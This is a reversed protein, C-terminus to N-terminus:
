PSLRKEIDKVTPPNDIKEEVAGFKFIFVPVANFQYKKQIEFRNNYIQDELEQNQYCQHIKEPLIGTKLVIKELKKRTEEVLSTMLNNKSAEEWETFSPIWDTQHDIILQSLKLYGEKGQCWFLKTAEVSLANTPLDKLVIRLPKRKDNGELDVFKDIIEKLPGNKYERCHPCTACTYVELTAPADPNGLVIDPLLIIPTSDSVVYFNTQIIFFLLVFCFKKM